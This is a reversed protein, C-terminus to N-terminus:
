DEFYFDIHQWVVVSNPPRNDTIIAAYNPGCMANDFSVSGEHKYVESVLTEVDLPANDDIEYAEFRREYDTSIFLYQEFPAIDLEKDDIEKHGTFM